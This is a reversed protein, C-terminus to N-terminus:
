QKKFVLLFGQQFDNPNAQLWFEERKKEKKKPPPPPYISKTWM